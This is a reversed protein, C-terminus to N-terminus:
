IVSNNLLQELAKLNERVGEMNPHVELASNFATRAQLFDKQALNVLGLGSLAGFHYPELKLVEAIDAKSAEYDGLLYYLTARKNWAEAYGPAQNILQTYTAVAGRLNNSNMQSIGTVMQNYFAPNDNELWIQWIQQEIPWALTENEADHLRMFLDGLRPDNQDAQAYPVLVGTLLLGALCIMGVPKWM